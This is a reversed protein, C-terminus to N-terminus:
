ICFTFFVILRQCSCDSSKAEQCFRFHLNLCLRFYKSKLGGCFLNASGLESVRPPPGQKGPDESGKVSGWEPTSHQPHKWQGACCIWCGGFLAAPRGGTRHVRRCHSMGRREPFQAPESVQQSRCVTTAAIHDLELHLKLLRTVERKGVPFVASHHSGWSLLVWRAKALPCCDSAMPRWGQQTRVWLVM